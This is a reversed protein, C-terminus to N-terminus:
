ALSRTTTRDPDFGALASVATRLADMPHSDKILALIDFIQEPLERAGKLDADYNDLQTQTPLEGHILLYATEEFTSLEALEDINYGRYELVGKKGDIFTTETRDFYVGALGRHLTIDDTTM